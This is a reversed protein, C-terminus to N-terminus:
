QSTQVDYFYDFGDLIVGTHYVPPTTYLFLSDFPDQDPTPAYFVDYNDAGSPTWEIRVDSGDRVAFIVLPAPAGQYLRVYGDGAGVLIDPFSDGNWDCVFPRSRPGGDLDIPVGDSVVPAYGSFVPADDTGTNSYFLVQGETDGTLLDKNGDGDLQM